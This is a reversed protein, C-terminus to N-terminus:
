LHPCILKIAQKTIKYVQRKGRKEKEKESLSEGVIIYVSSKIHGLFFPSEELELEKGTSLKIEVYCQSGIGGAGCTRVVSDNIKDGDIDLGQYSDGGDQERYEIYFDKPEHGQQRQILVKHIDTCINSQAAVRTSSICLLIVTAFLRIFGTLQWYDLPCSKTNIMQQEACV